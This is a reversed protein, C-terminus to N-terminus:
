ERYEAIKVIEDQESFVLPERRGERTIWATEGRGLMEGIIAGPIGRGRLLACAQEAVARPATFLFVGSSLLGLPDMGFHGCLALTEERIPLSAFEVAAGVGSRRCIEQIGMAVGGETPDHGSTLACGELARGEEVISIGPEDLWGLVEEFTKGGLIERSQRPRERAITTTGELGVWKSMCLADGPLAGGTALLRGTLFGVAQGCIV